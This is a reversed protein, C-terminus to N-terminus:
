QKQEEFHVFAGRYLSCDHVSSIQKRFYTTSLNNKKTHTNALSLAATPDESSILHKLTDWIQRGDTISSGVM